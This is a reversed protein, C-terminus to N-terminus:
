FWSRQAEQRTNVRAETTRRQFEMRILRQQEGDRFRVQVWITGDTELPVQQDGIFLSASPETSGCVILEADAVLWFSRQRLLGSAWLGAGSANLWIAREQIFDREHLVASGFRRRASGATSLLDLREHEVGGSDGIPQSVVGLPGEMAFPLVADAVVPSPGEAPVWAVSSLVM